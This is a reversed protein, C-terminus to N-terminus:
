QVLHCVRAVLVVDVAGLRGEVERKSEVDVVEVVEKSLRMTLRWMENLHFIIQHEEPANRM